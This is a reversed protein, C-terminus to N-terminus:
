TRCTNTMSKPLQLKPFIETGKNGDAKDILEYFLDNIDSENMRVKGTNDYDTCITDIMSIKRCLNMM